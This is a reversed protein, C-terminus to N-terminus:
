EQQCIFYEKWECDGDAWKGDGLWNTLVCDEGANANNPDGPIWNTYEFSFKSSTWTFTGEQAIDSGAIWYKRETGIIFILKIKYLNQLDFVHKLIM